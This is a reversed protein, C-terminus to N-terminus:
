SIMNSIVKGMIVNIHYLTDNDQEASVSADSGYIISVVYTPNSVSLNRSVSGRIM